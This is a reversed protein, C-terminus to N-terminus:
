PIAGESQNRSDTVPYPYAGISELGARTCNEDLKGGPAGGVGIGGVIEEGFRIPLGGGLFLMFPNIDRLGQVEPNKAIMEAFKQTADRMSNATYAKRVSSDATHPSAGDDRLLIRTVGSQDVV